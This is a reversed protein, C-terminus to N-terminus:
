ATLMPARRAIALLIQPAVLRQLVLCSIFVTLASGLFRVLDFDFFIFPLMAMTAIGYTFFLPIGRYSRLIGYVCGAFVGIVFAGIVAGVSGFDIYLEGLYGISVSTGVSLDFRLGTYTATVESDDPTPPKDPFFIRPKVMNLAAEGLRAGNEYPLINPVRSMTCALMDIYSVRAVLARVGAQFQDDNFEDVAQGVYSLREGLPRTVVQQGTGENLFTRYDIKISSWFIAVGLILTLVVTAGLISRLGLRPRAAAAAALLTLLSERFDAFFGTLGFVVELAVVVSLLGLAKGKLLCWYALLFLGAHRAGGFALFIQRAPGAVISLVALAHGAVILVLAIPIILAQPWVAADRALTRGWDIRASRRAGLWMGLGLAAVGAIAPYAGPTLYEGYDALSDLPRGTLATQLPKIAVSLWQLGFPLLLVPADTPPWLLFVGLALVGGVLLVILPSPSAAAGALALIAVGM